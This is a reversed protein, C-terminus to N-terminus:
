RFTITISFRPLLFIFPDYCVCAERYRISPRFFTIAKDTIVRWDNDSDIMVIHKQCVSSTIFFIFHPFFNMWHQHVHYKSPSVDCSFFDKSTLSGPITTEWKKEHFDNLFSPWVNSDPKNTLGMPQANEVLNSHMGSKGDVTSSEMTAANRM